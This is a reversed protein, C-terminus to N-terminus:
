PRSGVVVPRSPDACWAAFTPEYIRAHRVGVSEFALWVAAAMAGTSCYVVLDDPLRSVELGARALTRRVEHGSAFRGNEGSVLRNYPVNIAGPIHGRRAVDSVRGEYAAPLRADIVVGRERARVLDDTDAGFLREDHLALGAWREAPEEHSTPLGDARWQTWGGDLVRAGSYGLARLVWAGRSAFLNFTDDYLVIWRDRTVGARALAVRLAAYSDEGVDRSWFRAILHRSWDIFHAGPVHGEAYDGRLALHRAGPAECPVVRGRVDLVCVRPDGLHACLWATTVLPGECGLASSNLDFRRATAAM